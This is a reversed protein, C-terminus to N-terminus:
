TRSEDAPSRTWWPETPGPAPRPAAPVGLRGLEAIVARAAEDVAARLPPTLAAGMGVNGPIAGVLLVERAGSGAFDASLLAEKLGPDHPSLRPQPLHALIAEKRYQRLEGPPGNSKVTDVIVLADAGTVYPILDLGPTGVDIVEVEDPFSHTALLHEVVFPGFGDDSMLVNGLGLVRVKM